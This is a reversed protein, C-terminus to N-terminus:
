EGGKAGFDDGPEHICPHHIEVVAEFPLHPQDSGKNSRHQNASGTVPARPGHQPLARQNNEPFQSPTRSCRHEPTLLTRQACDSASEAPEWRGIRGMMQRSEIEEPLERLKVSGAGTAVADPTVDLSWDVLRM